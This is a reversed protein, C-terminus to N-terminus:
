RNFLKCYAYAISGSFGLLIGMVNYSNFPTGGLFVIGLLVAGIDKLNGCVTQTLPSNISTNLFMAYNLCFALLSSLLLIVKLSVCPPYLCLLLLRSAQFPGKSMAEDQWVRSMEGSLIIWMLLVPGCIIGNMWMLGFTSMGLRKGVRAIAVLYLATTCNSAMVTLYGVMSFALDHIGAFLAGAVMIAVSLVVGKTHLKGSVLFEAAMTFAVTTRRLTTYMPIDVAKLALMGFIMYLLYTAALPSADLYVSRPPFLPLNEKKGSPPLKKADSFSIVGLRNLFALLCNSVALHKFNYGSLASKNFLVLLVACLMYAVAVALGLKHRPRPSPSRAPGPLLTERGSIRCALDQRACWSGAGSNLTMARLIVALM